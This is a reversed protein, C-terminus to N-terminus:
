RLKEKCPIEYIVNSTFDTDDRDKTNIQLISKKSLLKKTRVALRKESFSKM